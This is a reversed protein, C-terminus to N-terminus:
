RAVYLFFVGAGVLGAFVAWWLGQALRAHAPNQHTPNVQRMYPTLAFAVSALFVAELTHGALAPVVDGLLIVLPWLWIRMGTWGGRALLIEPMLFRDRRKYRLKGSTLWDIAGFVFMTGTFVLHYTLDGSQVVIVQMFLGWALAGYVQALINVVNDRGPLLPVYTALAGYGLGLLAMVIVRPPDLQVFVESPYIANLLALLSVILVPHVVAWFVGLLPPYAQWSNRAPAQQSQDSIDM